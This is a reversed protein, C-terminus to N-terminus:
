SFILSPEGTKSPNNPNQFLFMLLRITRLSFRQYGSSLAAQLEYEDIFGSRDRDVAQFSQIIEPHTGPPFYYGAAGGGGGGGGGGGAGLTYPSSYGYSSPPSHYPYGSPASPQGSPKHGSSPEPMPPASPAHSYSPYRNYDAM